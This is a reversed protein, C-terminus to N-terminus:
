NIHSLYNYLYYIGFISFIIPSLFEFTIVMYDHWKIYLNNYNYTAISNKRNIDDLEQSPTGITEYQGYNNEEHQICEELTLGLTDGTNKYIKQKILSPLYYEILEFITVILFNFFLVLTIFFIFWGLVEQNNSLDLGILSFKKPLAKALGVFLSIGSFTLFKLKLKRSEESFSFYQNNM